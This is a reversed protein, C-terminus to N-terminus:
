PLLTRTKTPGTVALLQCSLCYPASIDLPSKPAALRRVHASALSRGSYLLRTQLSGRLTAHQCGRAPMRSPSAGASGNKRAGRARRGRALRARGFLGQRRARGGVRRAGRVTTSSSRNLVSGPEKGKGKGALQMSNWRCQSNEIQGARLYITRGFVRRYLRPAGGVPTGGM